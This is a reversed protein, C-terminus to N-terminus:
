CLKLIGTVIEEFAHRTLPGGDTGGYYFGSHSSFLKFILFVCIVMDLLKAM